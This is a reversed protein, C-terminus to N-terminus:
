EQVWAAFQGVASPLNFAAHLAVGSWFAFRPRVRRWTLYSAAILYFLGLAAVARWSSVLLHLVCAVVAAVAAATRDEVLYHAIGRLLAVFVLNELLPALLIASAVRILGHLDQRLPEPEAIWLVLLTVLWWALGYSAIRWAYATATGQASFLLDVLRRLHMQAHPNRPAARIAGGRREIM